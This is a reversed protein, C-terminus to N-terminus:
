SVSAPLPEPQDHITDWIVLGAGVIVVALLIALNLAYLGAKAM